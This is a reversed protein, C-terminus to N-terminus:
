ASCPGGGIVIRKAGADQAGLEDLVARAILPLPVRAFVEVSRGDLRELALPPSVTHVQGPFAMGTDHARVDLRALKATEFFEVLEGPLPTIGAKNQAEFIAIQALLSRINQTM